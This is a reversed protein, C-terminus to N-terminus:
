SSTGRSPMSRSPMKLKTSSQMRKTLSLSDSPMELLVLPIEPMEAVVSDEPLAGLELIVKHCWKAGEVFRGLWADELEQEADAVQQKYSQTLKEFARDYGTQWSKQMLKPLADREQAVIAQLNTLEGEM